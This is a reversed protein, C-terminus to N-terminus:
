MKQRWFIRNEYFKIMLDPCRKNAWEARVFGNNRNKFQLLAVLCKKDDQLHYINLVKTPEYNNKNIYDEPLLDSSLLYNRKPASDRRRPASDGRPPEKNQGRDVHEM